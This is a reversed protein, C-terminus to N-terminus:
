DTCRRVIKETRVSIQDICKRRGNVEQLRGAQVVRETDNRIHLHGGHATQFKQHIHARSALVHRKNEDGGEWVFADAGPRQLSASNTEQVFGESAGDQDVADFGGQIAM